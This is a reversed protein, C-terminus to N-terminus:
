VTLEMVQPRNSTAARLFILTARWGARSIGCDVGLYGQHERCLQKGRIYQSHHHRSRHLGAPLFGRRTKMKHRGRYPPRKESRGISSTRGRAEMEGQLREAEGTTEISSRCRRSAICPEPRTFFSLLVHCPRMHEDPHVLRPRHGAHRRIGLKQIPGSRWEFSRGVSFDALRFPALRVTQPVQPSSCRHM